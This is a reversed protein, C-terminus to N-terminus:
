KKWLKWINVTGGDPNGPSSSHSNPLSNRQQFKAVYAKLANAAAEHGSGFMQRQLELGDEFAMDPGTRGGGLDFRTGVDIFIQAFSKKTTTGSMPRRRKTSRPLTDKSHGHRYSDVWVQEDNGPRGLPATGSSRGSELDIGPKDGNMRLQAM